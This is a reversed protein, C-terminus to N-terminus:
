YGFKKRSSIVSDSQNKTDQNPNNTNTSSNSSNSNNAMRRAIAASLAPNLKKKKTMNTVSGPSTMPVGSSSNDYGDDKVSQPNMVVM